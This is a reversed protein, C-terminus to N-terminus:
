GLLVYFKYFVQFGEDDSFYSNILQVINEHKLAKLANVEALVTDPRPTGKLTLSISKLAYFVSPNETYRVKWVRAYTGNGIAEIKEIAMKSLSDRVIECICSLSIM